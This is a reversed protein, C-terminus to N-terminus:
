FIDVDIDSYSLNEDMRNKYSKADRKTRIYRRFSYINSHGTIKLIEDPNVGNRKIFTEKHILEKKSLSFRPINPIINKCEETLYM